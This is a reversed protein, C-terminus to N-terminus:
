TRSTSPATSKSVPGPVVGSHGPSDALLLRVM